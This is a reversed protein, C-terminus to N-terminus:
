QKVDLNFTGGTTIKVTSQATIDIIAMSDGHSFTAAVDQSTNVWNTWGVPM